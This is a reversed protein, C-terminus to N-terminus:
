RIWAPPQPGQAALEHLYWLPLLIACATAVGLAALASDEGEPSFEALWVYYDGDPLPIRDNGAVAQLSTGSRTFGVPQGAALTTSQIRRHPAAYLTYMRGLPAKVVIPTHGSRYDVVRTPPTACGGAMAALVILSAFRGM